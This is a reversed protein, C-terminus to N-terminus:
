CMHTGANILAPYFCVNACRVQPLVLQVIPGIYSALHFVPLLFIPSSLHFMLVHISGCRSGASSDAQNYGWGGVWVCRVQPLLLVLWAHTQATVACISNPGAAQAWPAAHSRNCCSLPQLPWQLGAGAAAGAQCEARGLARQQSASHSSPERATSEPEHWPLLLRCPYTPPTAVWGEAARACPSM